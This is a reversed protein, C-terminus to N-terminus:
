WGRGKAKGKGKSKEKGKGKNKGKNKDEAEDEDEDEGQDSTEDTDDSPSAGDSSDDGTDAADLSQGGGSFDVGTDPARVSAATAVVQDAVGATGAIKVELYALTFDADGGELTVDFATVSSALPYAEVDNREAFSAGFGSAGVLVPTFGVNASGGKQADTLDAAYLTLTRAASDHTIVKLESLNVENVFHDDDTWIVLHTRGDVTHAAVVREAQRVWHNIRDAIIRASTTQERFAQRTEWANGAAVTMSAIVLAMVGLVSLAFSMEVLTLGRTPRTTRIM